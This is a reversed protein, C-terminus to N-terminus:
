LAIALGLLGALGAFSMAIGATAVPAGGTSTATSPSASGTSTQSSSTADSTATSGSSAKTQTATAAATNIASATAPTADKVTTTDDLAATTAGVFNEAFGGQASAWAKVSSPLANYWAPLTGAEIESILASRSTADLIEEYWSAPIATELVTLISNPVSTTTSTSAPMTLSGALAEIKAMDDDDTTVPSALAPTLFLLAVFTKFHM